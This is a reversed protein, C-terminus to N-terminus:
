QSNNEMKLLVYLAKGYKNAPIWKKVYSAGEVTGDSKLLCTSNGIARVIYNDFPTKTVRNVRVDGDFDQTYVLPWKFLHALLKLM